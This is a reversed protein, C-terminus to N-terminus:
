TSVYGSASTPGEDYLPGGYIASLAGHLFLYWLYSTSVQFPLVCYLVKFPSGWTFNLVLIYFRCVQLPSCPVLYTFLVRFWFQVKMLAVIIMKMLEYFLKLWTYFLILLVKVLL